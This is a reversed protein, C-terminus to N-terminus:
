ARSLRQFVGLYGTAAVFGAATAAAVGLPVFLFHVAVLFTVLAGLGRPFFRIMTRVPAPGYALHVIILTPLLTTPFGALIGAARAPLVAALGTIVLVLGSAGAARLMIATPTLPRAAISGSDRVHRFGRAFCYTAPITVPLAGAFTWEVRQLALACLCYVVVAVSLTLVLSPRRKVSLMALYGAALAQSAVLGPLAAVAAEAAFGPGFEVGYFGLVIATGLPYGAIIGAWRPGVKEALWSLGLVLGATVGIKMMWLNM